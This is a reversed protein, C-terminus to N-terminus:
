PKLRIKRNLKKLERELKDLVRQVKRGDDGEFHIQGGCTCRTTQGPVMDQLRIRLSRGCNPCRVTTALVPM